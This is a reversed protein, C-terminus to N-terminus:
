YVGVCNEHCWPQKFTFHTPILIILIELNIFGKLHLAGGIRSSRIVRQNVAARIAKNLNVITSM